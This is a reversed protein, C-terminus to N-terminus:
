SVGQIVMLSWKMGNLYGYRTSKTPPLPPTLPPSHRNSPPTAQPQSSAPQPASDRRWEKGAGRDIGRSHTKPRPTKKGAAGEEGGRGGEGRGGQRKEEEEEAVKEETEWSLYLNENKNM